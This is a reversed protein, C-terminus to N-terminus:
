SIKERGNEKQKLQKVILHRLQKRIISNFIWRDLMADIEKM